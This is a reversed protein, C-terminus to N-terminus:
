ADMVFCTLGSNLEQYFRTSLHITIFNVTVSYVFCKQQLRSVYCVTASIQTLEMVDCNRQQYIAVHQHFDTM